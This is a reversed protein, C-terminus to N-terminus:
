ARLLISGYMVEAGTYYALHSLTMQVRDLNATFRDPNDTLPNSVLNYCM